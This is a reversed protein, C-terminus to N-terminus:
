APVYGLLVVGSDFHRTETQRLRLPTALAPFFPTGGGLIVPHVVLRFVDVLGRQIFSAALTPGGLGLDGDFEAKLRALEEGVDGSVLRSNWQVAELSTSFVVKPKAVWIRAFDREVETSSPDSEATPWHGAMLEYLRRGYVLASVERERDNFYSHLEEDVDGWGLGHDRDEVYGDLSVNLSYILKGM